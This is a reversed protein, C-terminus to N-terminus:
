YVIETSVLKDTMAEIVSAGLGHKSLVAAKGPYLEAQYIYGSTASTRMWVKFGKKIPKKPM